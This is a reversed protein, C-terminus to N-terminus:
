ARKDAEEAVLSMREIAKSSNLDSNYQGYLMYILVGPILWAVFHLCLTVGMAATMYANALIALLPVVYTGPLVFLAEKQVYNTRAIAFAAVALAMTVPLLLQFAGGNLMLFGHAIGIIYFASTAKWCRSRDDDTACHYLLLGTAVGVFVVLCSLSTVGLLISLELSSALVMVLAAM